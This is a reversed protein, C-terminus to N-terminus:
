RVDYLRVIVPVAAGFVGLAGTLRSPPAGAFPDVAAHFYTYYNDDVAAVVVRVRLNRPFVPNTEFTRATGPLVITTDAFVSYHFREGTSAEGFVSVQYSKAGPIRRWDLRLTDTQRNFTFVFLNSPAPATSPVTTEGMVTDGAPSVVRLAYTGGPILAGTQQLGRFRYVAPGAGAPDEAATFVRDDPGTLTVTAAGVRIFGLKDRQTREVLVIQDSM